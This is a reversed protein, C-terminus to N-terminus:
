ALWAGGDLQAWQAPRANQAARVQAMVEEAIVEPVTWFGQAGRVEIPQPLAVVDSLLLHLDGQSAWVSRSARTSGSLVAVAVIGPMIFHEANLPQGAARRALEAAGAEPLEGDLRRHIDAISQCLYRWGQNNGRRPVAGGHIAILEGSLGPLGMLDALRDDWERNEVDKGLWAVAFAWPHKLTLAKM